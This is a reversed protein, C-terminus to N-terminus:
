YQYFVEMTDEYVGDKLLEAPPPPVRQFKPITEAIWQDVTADGSPKMVVMSPVSGDAAITFRLTTTWERPATGPTGLPKGTAGATKFLRGLIGGYNERVSEAKSIDIPKAKNGMQAVLATRAIAAVVICVLLALLKNKM